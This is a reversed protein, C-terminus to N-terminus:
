EPPPGLARGNKKQFARLAEGIAELHPTTWGKSDALLLPKGGPLWAVIRVRCDCSECYIRGGPDIPSGDTYGLHDATLQGQSALRGADPVHQFALCGCGPCGAGKM